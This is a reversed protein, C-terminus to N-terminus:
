EVVLQRVMSARTIYSPNFFFCCCFMVASALMFLQASAVSEQRIRLFAPRRAFGDDDVGKLDNVASYLPIGLEHIDDDM